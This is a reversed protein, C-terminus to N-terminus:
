RSLIFSFKSLNRGMESKTVGPHLAYVTVGSNKLKKSLERTFMVQALKSQLYPSFRDYNKEFNLDDRRFSQFIHGWSSVNIIRSLQSKRLRKLLLLTLLFHGYYNVGMQMELGDETLTRDIFGVGANNILIDLKPEKELFEKAFERISRFSALDIHMVHVNSNGTTQIIEKQAKEALNKDRCALIVKAGRDAMEIATEKGIGSNAGTILVCKGDARVSKPYMQGEMWFRHSFLHIQLIIKNM